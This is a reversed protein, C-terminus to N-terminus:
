IAEEKERTAHQTAVGLFISVGKFHALLDGSQYM